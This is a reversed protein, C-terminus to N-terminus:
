NEVIIGSLEWQEVLEQAKEENVPYIDNMQYNLIFSALKIKEIDTFESLDSKKLNKIKNYVEDKPIYEEYDSSEIRWGKEGTGHWRTALASIFKLININSRAIKNFYELTEEKSLKEWLFFAFRFEVINSILETEIVGRINLMYMNELEQLQELSIIAKTNVEESNREYFLKIRDLIIAIAGIRNKDMDNLISYLLEFREQEVRIRCLLEEVLDIALVYATKTFLGADTEGKFKWQACLVVSAILSIREYPIDDILSQVEELFYVVNGDQNIKEVIAGLEEENFRFLCDKITSRSVEVSDLDYRFYIDFKEDDCIKMKKKSEANSQYVGQYEDIEKAFAPFLTSVCRISKDPNINIGKFENYFRERYEARTGNNRSINYRISNCLVDKHNYIWKYLKPELVELTTIGIMDEVSVEQYLARYKFKFINTLRNIDRLNDIYPSVCNVFVREWYSDDIITDNSTDNIIKDLQNFLYKHVKSKSIKPIEFPIQIIKELYEHGDINHIEKLARCVIERDMSLIYVINPFNGVQKALHFIDRIQSNTLRDIDDIVVIIKQNSEKLITELKEKTSDLNPVEMLNAGQTKIIPKLINVLIGGLPSLVSLADLCDAYDTLVKGIKRKIKNNSPMDLHNILNRFFLSILNDKDSYNWPSFTVILPENESEEGMNKIENMTMNLVSTKGSGWEGFLGIVLGDSADCEYLAKALQKSFFTRGLLDEAGTKIPNDANYNM